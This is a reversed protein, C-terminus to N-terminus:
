KKLIPIMCMFIFPGDGANRFRHIEDPPMWVVDGPELPREDNELKLAGRGELVLVQHEYDHRHFPTHGGVALEFVRMAFNKAGRKQDILWRVWVGEAGEMIVSESKVDKWRFKDAM